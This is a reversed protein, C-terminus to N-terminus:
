LKEEKPPPLTGLIKKRLVFVSLSFLAYLKKYQYGCRTSLQDHSRGSQFQPKHAGGQGEPTGRRSGSPLQLGPMNGVVLWSFSFPLSTLHCDPIALKEETQEKGTQFVDLSSLKRRGELLPLKDREQDSRTFFYKWM